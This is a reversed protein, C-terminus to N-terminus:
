TKNPKQKETVTPEAYTSFEKEKLCVTCRYRKPKAGKSPANIWVRNGIGYLEDQTKNKCTCPKIISAQTAM